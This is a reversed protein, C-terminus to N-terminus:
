MQAGTQWPVFECEGLGNRESLTHDGSAVELIRDFIRDGLQDLTEDGDLVTGCNIDMDDNMHDFVLSNTVLKLSPSPRNGYISGRGTTFCVLNAGSAVEGTISCPDYGPSDMFLLGTADVPEAYRYVGNLNTSGAKAVAGLSKELITELGGAKNGPTPNNNIESGHRAAYDEWWQILDILKEGTELSRARQTLLHEAGYIEPTEALIASGGQAVLRDVAKGLAPNASIGSYGDSGGCQLAVVLESAPVPERVCSNALPLVDELWKLAAEVTAKTGGAAQITMTGLTPGVSEGFTSRLSSIQNTECGLGLLLVAAFNPHRVHGWVTRQLMHFSEDQTGVCCGAGHVIPVVGDVNPYSALLDRREVERAIQKAVTASCNVSTVIGIYNRTGVHGDPRRYGLFTAREGESVIETERAASCFAYDRDFDGMSVNHVHVHDGPAIDDSAFGIIQGYKVIPQATSIPAVCVKHGPPIDVRAMGGFNGLDTGREHERLAVAVNDDPQLRILSKM